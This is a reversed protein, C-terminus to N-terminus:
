LETGKLISATSHLCLNILTEPTWTAESTVTLWLLASTLLDTLLKVRVCHFVCMLDVHKM